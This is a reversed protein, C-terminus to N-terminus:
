LALKQSRKLFHAKSLLMTVLPPLMLPGRATREKLHKLSGRLLKVKSLSANIKAIQDEPFSEPLICYNDTVSYASILGGSKSTSWSLPLSLPLVSLIPQIQSFNMKIKALGQLM